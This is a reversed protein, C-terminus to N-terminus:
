LRRRLQKARDHRRGDVGRLAGGFDLAPLVQERLAPGEILERWGQENERPDNEPAWQYFRVTWDCRMVTGSVSMPKGAVELDVRFAHVGPKTSTVTFRDPLTGARPSM